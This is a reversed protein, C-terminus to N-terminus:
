INESNMKKRFVLVAAASVAIVEDARNRRKVRDMGYIGALMELNEKM